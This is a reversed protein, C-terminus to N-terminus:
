RIGGIETQSMVAWIALDLTGPQIGINDAYKVFTNELEIYNSSTSINRIPKHILEKEIMFKLVHSDIIALRQSYGINRLFLSAQKPGIGSCNNSIWDRLIVDTKHKLFKKLTNGNSYIALASQCIHRARINPYRFKRGTGNKKLPKYISRSLEMSIKKEMLSPNKIIARQDVLDTQILRKLASLAHDYSVRSGLICGVLEIWIERESLKKWDPINSRSQASEKVVDITIDEIQDISFKIM